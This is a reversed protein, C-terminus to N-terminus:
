AQLAMLNAVAHCTTSEALTCPRCVAPPNEQVYLCNGNEDLHIAKFHGGSEIVATDPSGMDVMAIQPSSAPPVAGGMVREAIDAAARLNAEIGDFAQRLYDLEAGERQVSELPNPTAM